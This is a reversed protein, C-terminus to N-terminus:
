EKVGFHRLIKRTPFVPVVSHDDYFAQQGVDVCNKITLEILRDFVESDVVYMGDSRQTMKTAGSQEILCKFKSNM